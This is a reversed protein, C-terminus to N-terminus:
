LGSNNHAATAAAGHTPTFVTEDALIPKEDVPLGRVADSSSDRVNEDDDDEM